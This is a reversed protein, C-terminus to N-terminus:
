TGLALELVPTWLSGRGLAVCDAHHAKVGAVFRIRAAVQVAHLAQNLAVASLKGRGGRVRSSWISTRQVRQEQAVGGKSCAQESVRKAVVASVCEYRHLRLTM